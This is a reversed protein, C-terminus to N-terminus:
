MKAIKRRRFVKEIGFMWKILVYFCLLSFFYFNPVLMIPKFIYPVIPMAYARSIRSAIHWSFNAHSADSTGSKTYKSSLTPGGCSATAAESTTTTRDRSSCRLYFVPFINRLLLFKNKVAASLCLCSFNIEYALITVHRLSQSHSHSHTHRVDKLTGVVFFHRIPMLVACPVPRTAQWLKIPISSAALVLRM